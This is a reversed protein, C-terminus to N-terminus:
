GSIEFCCRAKEGSRDCCERVPRGILETLLAEIALCTRPNEQVALGLPCSFGRIMPRGKADVVETAGGLENLVASAAEMRARIDGGPEPLENAWRQGVARLLATLQAPPMRKNLERLLRVLMPVYATSLSTAFDSSLAYSYSPKGSGRRLGHQRVLGDRELTALQARVANDTIGLARAM